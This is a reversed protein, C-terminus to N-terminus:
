SLLQMFINIYQSIITLPYRIFDFYFLFLGGAIMALVEAEQIIHVEAQAELTVTGEIM